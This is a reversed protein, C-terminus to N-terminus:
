ADAVGIVSWQVHVCGADLAFAVQLQPRTAYWWGSTSACPQGDTVGTALESHAAGAAAVQWYPVFRWVDHWHAAVPCLGRAHRQSVDFSGGIGPGGIGPGGCQAPSDELRRDTHSSL